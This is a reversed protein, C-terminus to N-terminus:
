SKQEIINFMHACILWKWTPTAFCCSPIWDDIFVCELNCHIWNCFMLLCEDEEMPQCLVRPAIEIVYKSFSYNWLISLNYKRLSRNSCHWLNIYKPRRSSWRPKLMQFKIITFILTICIVVTNLISIINVLCWNDFM